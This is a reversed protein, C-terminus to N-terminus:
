HKECWKIAGKLTKWEKNITKGTEFDYYYIWYTGSFPSVHIEYGHVISVINNM